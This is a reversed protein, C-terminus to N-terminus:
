PHTSCNSQLCELIKQELSDYIVPGALYSKNLFVMPVVFEEEKAGYARSYNEYLAFNTENFFIERKEISIDPYKLQLKSLYVSSNACFPCLASYFYVLPAPSVAATENEATKNELTGNGAITNQATAGAAGGGTNQEPAPTASGTANQAPPAASGTANPTAANEASTNAASTNAASANMAQAANGEETKEKICGFLLFAALLLALSTTIKM